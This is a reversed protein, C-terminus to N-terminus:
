RVIRVSEARTEVAGDVIRTVAVDITYEAQNLMASDKMHLTGDAAEFPSDSALHFANAYTEDHTGLVGVLERTIPHNSASVLAYLTPVAPAQAGHPAGHTYVVRPTFLNLGRSAVVVTLDLSTEASGEARLSHFPADTNRGGAM